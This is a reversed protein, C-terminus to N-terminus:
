LRRVIAYGVLGRHGAVFILSDVLRMQKGM